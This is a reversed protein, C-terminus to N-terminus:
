TPSRRATVTDAAESLTASSGSVLGAVLKAVAIALNALGAVIVTGLSEPGSKEAAKDVM